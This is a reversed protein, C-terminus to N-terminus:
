SGRQKYSPDYNFSDLETLLPRIMRRSCAARLPALIYYRYSGLEAPLSRNIPRAAAFIVKLEM